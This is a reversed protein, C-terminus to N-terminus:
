QKRRKSIISRGYVHNIEDFERAHETKFHKWKKKVDRLLSSQTFNKVVAAAEYSKRRDEETQSRRKEAYWDEGNKQILFLRFKDRVWRPIQTYKGGIYMYSPIYLSENIQEAFTENTAYYKMMDYLLECGLPPNRSFLRFEPNRYEDVDSAKLMKKTVYGALYSAREPVIHSIDVRGFSWSDLIQTFMDEDAFLALHYHPRGFEDGYEGVAFFSIDFNCRKRLRKMFKQVEEKHINYDEPLFEDSYTLTVFYNYLHYRKAIMIRDAWEKRKNKLCNACKRCATWGRKHSFEPNLCFAM